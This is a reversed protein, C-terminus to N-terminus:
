ADPMKQIKNRRTNIEFHVANASIGTNFKVGIVEVLISSVFNSIFVSWKYGLGHSLHLSDVVGDENYDCRFWGYAQGLIERIYWLVSDYNIKMGRQLLSDKVRLSGKLYSIEAIEEVSLTDLLGVIIDSSMSVMGGSIFFRLSNVYQDVLNSVLSNISMGSREAESELILDSEKKIRVTRTITESQSNPSMIHVNYYMTDYLRKEVCITVTYVSLKYANCPENTKTLIGNMLFYLFVFVSRSASKLSTLFSSWLSFSSLMLLSSIPSMLLTGKMLMVAWLTVNGLSTVPVRLSTVTVMVPTFFSKKMSICVPAHNLLM